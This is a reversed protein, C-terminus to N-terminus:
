NPSGTWIDKAARHCIWAPAALSLSGGIFFWFGPTGPTIDFTPGRHPDGVCYGGFALVAMLIEASACWYAFPFKKKVMFVLHTTPITGLVCAALLKNPSSYIGILAFMLSAACMASSILWAAPQFYKSLTRVIKNDIAPGIRSIVWHGDPISDGASARSDIRQGPEADRSNHCPFRREAM